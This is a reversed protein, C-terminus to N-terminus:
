AFGPRPVVTRKSSSVLQAPELNQHHQCRIPVAFVGAIALAAVGRDIGIGFRFRAFKVICEIVPSGAHALPAAEKLTVLPVRGAVAFLSLVKNAAIRAMPDLPAIAALM